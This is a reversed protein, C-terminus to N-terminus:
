HVEQLVSNMREHNKAAQEIDNELRVILQSKEDKEKLLESNASELALKEHHLEKFAADIIM